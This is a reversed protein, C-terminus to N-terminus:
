HKAIAMWGVEQSEGMSAVKQDSAQGGHKAVDDVKDQLQLM